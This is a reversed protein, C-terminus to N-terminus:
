RKRHGPLFLASMSRRAARLAVASAISWTGRMVRAWFISASDDIALM